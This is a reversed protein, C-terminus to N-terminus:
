NPTNARRGWRWNSADAFAATQEIGNLEASLWRKNIPFRFPRGAFLQADDIAHRTVGVLVFRKPLQYTSARRTESAKVTALGPVAM